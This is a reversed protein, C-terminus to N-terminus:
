NENMIKEVCVGMEFFKDWLTKFNQFIYEMFSFVNWCGENKDETNDPSPEKPGARKIGNLVMIGMWIMILGVWNSKEERFLELLIALSGSVLMFYALAYHLFQPETHKM